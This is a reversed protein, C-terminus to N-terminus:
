ISMFSISILGHKQVIRKMIHPMSRVYKRCVNVRIYTYTYM